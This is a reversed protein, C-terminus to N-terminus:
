IHEVVGLMRGCAEAEGVRPVDVAAERVGGLIDKFLADGCQFASDACKCHCRACGCDCIGDEVDGARAVVDNRCLGDVASCIVEKLM